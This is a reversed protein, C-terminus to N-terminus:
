RVFGTFSITKARQNYKKAIERSKENFAVIYPEIEAKATKRDIAGARYAARADFARTKLEQM